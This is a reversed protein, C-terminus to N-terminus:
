EGVLVTVPLGVVSQVMRSFEGANSNDDSLHTLYIREVSSLDLSSLWEVTDHISMHANRIRGKLKEPIEGRKAREELIDPSYNAEVIVHTLGKFDWVAKRTDVVYCVKANPMELLWVCPENADHYSEYATITTSGVKFPKEVEVTRLRYHDINLAKKTGETMYIDVGLDLLEAVHSAHDSHEHTVLCANARVIDSLKVKGKAKKRISVGADLLFSDVGDSIYICNGKSDSGLPVVTLTNM